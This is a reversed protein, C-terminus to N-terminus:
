LASRDTCGKHNNRVGYGLASFGRYAHIHTYPCAASTKERYLLSISSKYYKLFM